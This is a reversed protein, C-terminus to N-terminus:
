QAATEAPAEPASAEPAPAPQAPPAPPVNKNLERQTRFAEIAELRKSFKWLEVEQEAAKLKGFVELAKAKDITKESMLARLDVKLKEAEVVKAKVEEPMDPAFMMGRHGGCKRGRGGEFPAPPMRRGEAGPEGAFQQRGRQDVHPRSTDQPMQQPQRQDIHQGQQGQNAPFPRRPQALATGAAFVVCVVAAVALVKKM